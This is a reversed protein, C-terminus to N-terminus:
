ENWGSSAQPGEEEGSTRSIENRENTRESARENMGVLRHERDKGKEAKEVSKM